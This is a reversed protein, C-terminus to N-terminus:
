KKSTRTSPKRAPDTDQGETGGTRATIEALQGERRKIEERERREDIGQLGETTFGLGKAVLTATREMVELLEARLPDPVRSVADRLATFLDERVERVPAIAKEPITYEGSLWETLLRSGIEQFTTRSAHRKDDLAKWTASDFRVIVRHM